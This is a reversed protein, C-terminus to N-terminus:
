CVVKKFIAVAKDIHSKSVILPPMFRVTNHGAKIVLLGRARCAAIVKAPDNNMEVGVMLGAGRIELIDANAAKLKELKKKLYVGKSRVSALFSKKAVTNLVVTGLACALPNGGFTTGHDGPGIAAAITSTCVVAGLPLGGGIPKALTMMDPVIGHQQYNWLTGTRGVGCQVEDFVLAIRHKKTYSRLFSLFEGSAFQIGSEGQVPEVIVAAYSHRDLVKKTAAIDNYPAYHFGPVMPMFGAHFKKQATASLGGYTRGHFCDTFSLIHYKKANKKTAWKRAFKIAAESAETGSNCLFVKAAFSKKVLLAAFQIQTQMHYLNSAHLLRAGRRKLTSVIKPHSHGLATVAIGSGFDLYKKGKTDYLYMGKGRLVPAGERKYTPVFLSNAASQKM